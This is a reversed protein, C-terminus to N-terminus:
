VQKGAVEENWGLPWRESAELGFEGDYVGAIEQGHRFAVARTRLREDDDVESPAEHEDAARGIRALDFLRDKRDHVIQQREATNHRHMARRIDSRPAIHGDEETERTGALRGQRGIGVPRQDAVVLMAPAIATHEVKFAPAVSLSNM